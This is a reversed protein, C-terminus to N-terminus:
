ILGRIYSDENQEETETIYLLLRALIYVRTLYRRRQSATFLPPLPPGYVPLM